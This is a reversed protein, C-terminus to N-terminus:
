EKVQYVHKFKGSKPHPQPLEKSFSITVEAVGNRRLYDKLAAEAQIFAAQREVGDKCVMRLELRNQPHAVLQFRSIGHVQKLVAYLALPAVKIEKDDSETFTLIDDTRGEIELWPSPNGCPCPEHHMRIRDTIEYRIIPQTFNSLNTLLLKDSLVGDPVPHNERDVPEVLLWDDNIHFQQNKCECAVTGGETCSYATQVYCSFVGSLAARLEPCLYEGGTMIISPSIHLRGQKQEDMLLELSTPYGGLMAPQFRNLAEVVQPLPDLVSTVMMQRKKWPLQLQRYRVSSNGLYFGNTAYVGATKGGRRLFAKMDEKRAYARLLNVAGMVSNSTHDALVISPSGTSGSTTFVLYKDNLKRGIHDPDQMFQEVLELTVTRDTLWEDFHEMLTVKNTPPLENLPAHKPVDRYLRQFYPSHQRAHSVLAHLRKQQLALKEDKSLKPYRAVLYVAELLGIQKM